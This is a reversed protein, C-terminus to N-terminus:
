WPLETAAATEPGPSTFKYAVALGGASATSSLALFASELATLVLTAITVGSLYGLATGCIGGAISYPLSSLFEVGALRWLQGSTQEWSKRPGQYRQLAYEIPIMCLRFSVSIGVILLLTSILLVLLTWTLNGHVWLLGLLPLVAPAIAVFLLAVGAATFQWEARGFAWIPRHSVATAGDVALRIWTVDLPILAIGAPLDFLAALQPHKVSGGVAQYVMLLLFSVAIAPSGFCLFERWHILPLKIAEVSTAIVPLKTTPV